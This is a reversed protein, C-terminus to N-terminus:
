ISAFASFFIFASNTAQDVAQICSPFGGEPPKRCKPTLRGAGTADTAGAGRPHDAGRAPLELVGDGLEGTRRGQLRARLAKAIHRGMQKAAPAVGPVPRGNERKVAALDGGVFLPPL